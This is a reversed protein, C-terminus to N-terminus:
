VGSTWNCERDALWLLAGQAAVRLDDESAQPMGNGIMELADRFHKLRVAVEIVIPEKSPEADQPTLRYLHAMHSVITHAVNLAGGSLLTRGSEVIVEAVKTSIENYLDSTNAGKGPASTWDTELDAM